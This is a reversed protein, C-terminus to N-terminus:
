KKLGCVLCGDFCDYSITGCEPCRWSLHEKESFSLFVISDASDADDWDGSHEGSVSERVPSSIKEQKETQLTLLDGKFVNTVIGSDVSNNSVDPTERINKLFDFLGM